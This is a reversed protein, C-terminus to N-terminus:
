CEEYMGGLFIGGEFYLLVTPDALSLYYTCSCILVVLLQKPHNNQHVFSQKWRIVAPMRVASDIKLLNEQPARRPM